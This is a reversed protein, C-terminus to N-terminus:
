DRCLRVLLSNVLLSLLCVGELATTVQSLPIKDEPQFIPTLHTPFEGMNPSQRIGGASSRNLLGSAKTGNLVRSLVGIAPELSSACSIGQHFTLHKGYM